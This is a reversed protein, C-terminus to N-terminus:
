YESLVSDMLTIFELVSRFQSEMSRDMWALSGQWSANQRFLVSIKFHALTQANEPPTMSASVKEGSESRFIRSEMSRQPCNLDDLMDEILFILQVVNQFYIEKEGFYPNSLFGQMNKNEYSTVTVISTRMEYPAFGVAGALPM